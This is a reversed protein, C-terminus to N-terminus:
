SREELINELRFSVYGAPFADITLALDADSMNEPDLESVIERGRELQENEYRTLASYAAIWRARGADGIGNGWISRRAASSRLLFMRARPVSRAVFEYDARTFHKWGWVHNEHPINELLVTFRDCAAHLEDAIRGIGAREDGTM